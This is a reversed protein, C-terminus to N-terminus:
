FHDGLIKRLKDLAAKKRANFSTKAICFAASVERETKDLYYLEHILQQETPSLTHLAERLILTLIQKDEFAVSSDAFQKQEDLLREYSDERSPMFKCGVKLDHMIYREKREGRYYERYVAESVEVMQGDLKIYFKSKKIKFKKKM